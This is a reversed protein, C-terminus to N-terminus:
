DWNDRNSGWQKYGRAKYRDIWKGDRFFYGRSHMEAQIEKQEEFSATKYQKKLSMDSSSTLKEQYARREDRKDALKKIQEPNMSKVAEEADKKSYPFGNKKKGYMQLETIAKSAQEKEAKNRAIQKEKIDENNAIDKQAKTVGKMTVTSGTDKSKKPATLKVDMGSEGEIRQRYVDRSEWSLGARKNEWVDKGTKEWTEGEFSIKSGVEANVLTSTGIDDRDVVFKQVGAKKDKAAQAKEKTEQAAKEKRRETAEKFAKQNPTEKKGTKKEADHEKATKFNSDSADGSQLKKYEAQAKKLRAKIEATHMDNPHKKLQEKLMDVNEKANQLNSVEHDRAKDFSSKGEKSKEKSKFRSDVQKQVKKDKAKIKDRLEKPGGISGDKYIPVRVGNMTVWREIEKEQKAMQEDEKYRDSIKKSIM